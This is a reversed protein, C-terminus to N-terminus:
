LDKICLLINCICSGVVLTVRITVRSPLLVDVTTLGAYTVSVLGSRCELAGKSAFRTALEFCIKGRSAREFACDLMRAQNAPRLAITHILVVVM